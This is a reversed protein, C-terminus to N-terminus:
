LSFPSLWWIQTSYSGLVDCIEWIQHSDGKQDRKSGAKVYGMKLFSTAGFEPVGGFARMTHGKQAEIAKKVVHTVIYYM